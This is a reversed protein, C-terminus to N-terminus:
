AVLLLYLLRAARKVGSVRLNRPHIGIPHVGRGASQQWQIRLSGLCTQWACVRHALVQHLLVACQHYFVRQAVRAKGVLLFEVM